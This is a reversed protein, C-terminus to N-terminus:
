RKEREERKMKDEIQNEKEREEGDAIIGSRREEAECADHNGHKIATFVKPDSCFNNNCRTKDQEKRQINTFKTAVLHPIGIRPPGRQMLLSIWM